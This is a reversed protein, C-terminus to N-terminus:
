TLMLASSLVVGVLSAVAAIILLKTSLGAGASLERLKM